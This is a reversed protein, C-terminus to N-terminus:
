TLMSFRILEFILYSPGIMNLIISTIAKSFTHLILLVAGEEKSPSLVSKLQTPCYAKTVNLM